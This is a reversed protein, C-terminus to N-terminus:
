VSYLVHMEAEIDTDELQDVCLNSAQAHATLAGKQVDPMRSLVHSAVYLDIYGNYRNRSSPTLGTTM